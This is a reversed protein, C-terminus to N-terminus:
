RGARQRRLGQASRKLQGARHRASKMTRRTARVALAAGTTRRYPDSIRDARRLREHCRALDAHQRARRDAEAAARPLRELIAFFEDTRRRTPVFEAVGFELRGIEALGSLIDVFSQPTFTNTHVDVYAGNQQQDVCVNYAERMPAEVDTRPFDRPDAGDWLAIIDIKTAHYACGDFIQQLTPVTAGRLATDVLQGLTSDPRAADFTFRRDPIALCLHGGDALVEAIQDLWGIPDAVHEIVHSGVVYDIPAWRGIVDRLRAGSEWVYDVDVLHALIQASTVDSAYKARLGETPLHDVYRVQTGARRVVPHHLAGIELGRDAALDLRSTLISRRNSM